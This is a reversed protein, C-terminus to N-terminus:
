GFAKNGNKEYNIVDELRILQSKALPLKASDELKIWSYATSVEDIKINGEKVKGRM